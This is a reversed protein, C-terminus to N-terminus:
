QLMENLLEEVSKGPERGIQRSLTFNLKKTEDLETKLDDYATNITDNEEKLSDREATLDDLQKKLDALSDQLVKKIEEETM